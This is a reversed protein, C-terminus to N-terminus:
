NERPNEDLPRRKAEVTARYREVLLETMRRLDYREEVRLRAREALARAQAGDEFLELICAAFADPEDALRCVEGDVSALGEAGMRTSVVPIGSAFAELLKVRMGSGGLIPCVFVAYRGLPERVDEVFGQLEIVDEPYPIAYRPPPDSGVIILKAEPQRQRVKPLVRRLFWELAAQNPMHRFSGVFLMTFPQRGCCRFPYRSADIGARLNIDIKPALQPLFSVLLEANSSSCVQVRDLKPLLRLEWRLARLYELAAAARKYVGRMSRWQRGISQFYVDHEFLCCAIQRYAGAYQGMPLYELQVVDIQHVYMHKHILWELDPDRFEAVAYPELSGLPRRRHNRRVLFEASACRAALEDHAERQHAFDLLVILHLPVHRALESCTQYMFVGGGHVPPCLPYPAVFLVSPKAVRHPLKFFRDRFYGGMPRRFAEGDSLHALRRARWRSRCARPLEIFAHLLGELSAREPSPGLFASLVADAWNAAFSATLWLPDHINKWVFLLLNKKIIRDIYSRSFSRGITGRHEHYVVSRPQYLVKWGRKWALYGLDTDELYFPALLADFGGLERLKRRDFATSGGGGYFCPFPQSLDDARHRLRLRGADWWAQTLGTEERVRGPNSFFIQCSVAFTTEDFCELLPPLFDREVRMDSNLLVVIDNRAALIGANCAAGFGENREKAVVRVSPFQHRVFDASGDSSGDDVVIVEHRPNGELAELLPPLYKELLDRGNWNPIVVSAGGTDPRSASAASRRGALKWVLDTLLLATWAALILLPSLLLLLLQAAWRLIAKLGGPGGSWYGGAPGSAGM